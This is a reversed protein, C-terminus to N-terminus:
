EEEGKEFPYGEFLNALKHIQYVSKTYANSLAIICVTDGRLTAYCGTNGHWWGTHFFYPKKDPVEVMRMGLGYNRAGAREYSYGRYIEKRAKESLFDKSYTAIDMKLIDRATSYMNKDGYVGDLFDVAQMIYRSNYSPSVENIKEPKDMIFSNEMELPEFILEKMAVPFKKESAKEIILALLAYNTNCYAFHTGAPYNLPFKHKNIMKLVDKNRMIFKKNWIGESFYGYYPIGSRHNLLMRVTVDKYPITPLYKRIDDELNIKGKDVLRMTALATAVKSISALHIPTTANLKKNEEYNLFGNVKEFIIKGNKAVLFMGNFRKKGLIDNYFPYIDQKKEKIFSKEVENFEPTYDEKKTQQKSKELTRKTTCGSLISISLAGIIVYQGLFKM